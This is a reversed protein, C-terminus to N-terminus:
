EPPTVKGGVVREIEAKREINLRVMKEKKKYRQLLRDKILQKVEDLYWGTNYAKPLSKPVDRVAIYNMGWNKGMVLKELILRRIERAQEATPHKV